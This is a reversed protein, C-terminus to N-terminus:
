HGMIKLSLYPALILVVFLLKYNAVFKFYIVPLENEPINFLKSHLSTILPRFLVLLITALILYGINLISAWGLLETLQEITIHTTVHSTVHTTM